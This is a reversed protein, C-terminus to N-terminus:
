PAKSPDTYVIKSVLTPLDWTGGAAVYRCMGTTQLGTVVFAKGNWTWRDSSWCDGLGRSKHSSFIHSGESHSGDTTVLVPAYPPRDNIVWFGVTANYAGLYCRSSLLLKQENIRQWDIFKTFVEFDYVDMCDTSQVTSKLENQLDLKSRRSSFILSDKPRSPIFRPAYVVPPSLASYVRSKPKSGKRVIATPTDVRGQFEDMKLLVAAAGRDSIEFVLDDRQLAIVSSRTLSSLLKSVQAPSLDAEMDEKSFILEGLSDSDIRLTFRFQAPLMELRSEPEYYGLKARASPLENAGAKRTILISATSRSSEQQYGAARCTRTNDCALEWDLHEFRLGGVQEASLQATTLGALLIFYALFSTTRMLVKQRTAGM